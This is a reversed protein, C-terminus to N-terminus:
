ACERKRSSKSAYLMRFLLQGNVTVLVNEVSADLWHSRGVFTSCARKKLIPACNSKQDRRSRLSTLARPSVCPLCSPLLSPPPSRDVARKKKGPLSTRGHRGTDHQR